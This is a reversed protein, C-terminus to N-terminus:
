RFLLKLFNNLEKALVGPPMTSLSVDSRLEVPVTQINAKARVSLLVFEMDFLYTNITTSLFLQKWNKNFAKLGCQTDDFPIRMLHRIFFRVLRSLGARFNNIQKYYQQDRNGIAIDATSTQICNIIAVASDTTYPIDVDTFAYYDAEITSLGKRLAAGKGENVDFSIIRINADQQQLWQAAQHFLGNTSGDNVICLQLPQQLTNKLETYRKYLLKEWDPLPNYVPILLATIAQQM